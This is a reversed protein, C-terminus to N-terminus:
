GAENSPEDFVASIGISVNILHSTVWEHGRLVRTLRM